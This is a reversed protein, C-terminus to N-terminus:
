HGSRRLGVRGAPGARRPHGPGAARRGGRGGASGRRSAGFLAQLSGFHEILREGLTGPLRNIQAMQRFGRTTVKSDLHDTTAFGVARAVLLPDLLQTTDLRCSGWGSSADGGVSGGTGGSASSGSTM